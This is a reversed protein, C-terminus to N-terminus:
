LDCVSNCRELPLKSSTDLSYVFFTQTLRPETSSYFNNAGHHTTHDFSVLRNYINDFRATEVFRKNNEDLCKDHETADGDRYFKVKAQNIEDIEEPSISYLEKYISTGCNPNINPTLYIIGGYLVQEDVHIWGHNRKDNESDAMPHILQFSTSIKWKIQTQFDFYLSLLKRCFKDFFEPDVEHLLETRKGPYIGRANDDSTYDLSLAFERIKDPDKYFNDVCM